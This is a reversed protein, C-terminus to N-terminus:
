RALPHTACGDSRCWLVGRVKGKGVEEEEEQNFDSEEDSM